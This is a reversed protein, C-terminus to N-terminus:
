DNLQSVMVIGAKSNLTDNIKQCRSLFEAKLLDMRKSVKDINLKIKFIKEKIKNVIKLIENLKKDANM